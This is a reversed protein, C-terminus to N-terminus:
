PKPSPPLASNKNNEHTLSLNWFLKLTEQCEVILKHPPTCFNQLISLHHSFTSEMDEGLRDGLILSDKCSQYKKVSEEVKRQNPPPRTQSKRRTETKVNVRSRGTSSEGCCKNENHHDQTLQSYLPWDERCAECCCDFFYQQALYKQRHAINETTYVPGYSDLIQSGKPIESISKVICLNGYNYRYVNPACSHNSLSVTPYTAGGIESFRLDRGSKGVVSNIGYANCTLSQYIRLFLGAIKLELQSFDQAAQFHHSPQQEEKKSQLLFGTFRLCLTLYIAVLTRKLIDGRSRKETNTIQSFVSEFQNPNLQGIPDLGLEMLGRGEGMTSEAPFSELTEIDTTTITRYCIVGM